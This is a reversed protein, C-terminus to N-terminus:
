GRVAATFGLTSLEVRTGGADPALVGARLRTRSRPACTSASPPSTAASSSRRPTSRTPWCRQGGGRGVGGVSDLAAWPARTGLSARRNIEALRDDLALAPDRVPDDPDAAADLLARLGSVTEWCGVRGCGCRRGQPEVIMHGFEGAYGQRGRLLRGGAVIGGGVGVEGFIVLIDQRGPRRAHGRRDRGPEGRQRHRAPVGCRAPRAAPRRGPRRALGPETGPDARRARPGRLGAVGVTLASRSSAVSPSTPTPRRSSTPWGASSRRPPCGRADLGLRHESVVEGGSTWPSRRSMTSTSRPAWGASGTATSSSQRHRAASARRARRGGTRVLGREALDAVLRELGGLPDAGARRGATARSRPGHDRLRRLVLCLNTRAPHRDVSQRRRTSTRM